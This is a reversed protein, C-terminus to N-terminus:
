LRFLPECVGEVGRVHVEGFNNICRLNFIKSFNVTVKVQNELLFPYLIEMEPTKEM